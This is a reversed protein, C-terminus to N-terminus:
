TVPETSITIQPQFPTEPVQVQFPEITITGIRLPFFLYNQDIITYLDTGFVESAVSPDIDFSSRGFGVLSPAIIQSDTGEGLLHIRLTYIIPEGVYVENDNVSGVVFSEGSQAYVSAALLLIFLSFWRM